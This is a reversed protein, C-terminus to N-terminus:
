FQNYIFQSADYGQGYVGFVLVCLFLGYLLIFQMWVPRAMLKGRVSGNRGALSVLLMLFAAFLLVIWDAAALGLRTFSGDFLQGPRFELFMSGFMRFVTHFPYYEFMEIMCFLLFTRIVEFAEYGRSGTWSFRSRFRKYLPSFEQSILLVACNAMGWAVFNWSAGHWIGTVFWVVISAFYLPARRGAGKGLTRRLFNSLSKSARSTSVPFFIYERFWRMLSMHWRRWFESLSKSFFPREFNEPLKVGFLQAVGIVIDIGGTFDAYMQLTYAIMGIWVYIGGYEDPSLVIAAMVPAIRDAAVLKKFYGWLIRMLGAKIQMWEFSHEEFLQGSLEDFRSIPGQIIQPFFSVFLAYRCLKKEPQYKRHYIDILYGTSQFTYYSIGLPLLWDVFPLEGGAGLTSLLGNVNGLVFNTYKLVALIGFNLLLGFIMIHRQKKKLQLNYKKKEEGSLAQEKIHAKGQEAMKGIQLAALWTTATTILLYLFAWVGGSLYFLYSAGLLLIWQYRRPILYYPLFLALMFFLFQYSVLLM